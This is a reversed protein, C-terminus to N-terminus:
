RPRPRRGGFDGQTLECLVKMVLREKVRSTLAEHDDTWLDSDAANCKEVEM